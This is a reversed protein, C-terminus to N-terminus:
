SQVRGLSMVTLPRSRMVAMSRAPLTPAPSAVWTSTSEMAGLPRTVPGVILALLSTWSASLTLSVPGALRARTWTQTLWSSPWVQLSPGTASAGNVLVAQFAGLSPRKRKATTATSLAPLGEGVGLPLLSSWPVRSISVWFGTIRSDWALPTTSASPM